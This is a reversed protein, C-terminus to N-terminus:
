QQQGRAQHPLSIFHPHLARVREECHNERQGRNTQQRPTVEIRQQRDLLRARQKEHQREPHNQAPPRLHVHLISPQRLLSISIVQNPCPVNSNRSGDPCTITISGHVSPFGANGFPCVMRRTSVIQM